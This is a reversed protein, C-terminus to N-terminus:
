EIVLKSSLSVVDGFDSEFALVYFHHVFARQYALVLEHRLDLAFASAVRSDPGQLFFAVHTWLIM